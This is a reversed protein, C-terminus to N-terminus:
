HKAILRVIDNYFVFLMLAGLLAMGIRQLIEQHRLSLPKGRLAELGFFLLHGGDLIPVPFLNIIGLNVSLLAIFYCLNVWGAAFQQGAMQAILIPGGLESAPVVRQFIKVIGMVTLYIYGWTQELGAHFAKTLSVKEYEVKEKPSIGLLYREEVKEGFLNKVESRVPQASIELPAEQRTLSITLRNGNSKRVLDSIEPWEKTAVGNIATITDGVQLGAREAASNAEVRGITTNTITRPVGTISFLLFFLFVAFLLNFLPGGAVILFRQWVPKSAFSSQREEPDVTDGAQEGLMKVYGGLPLASILYETDGYQKGCLKPGFGLSFKLVKVKFLKALIFHGFEHVFILLGLVLVFSFVTQM